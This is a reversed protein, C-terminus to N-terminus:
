RALVYGKGTVSSGLRVNAESNWKALGYEAMVHQLVSFKDESIAKRTRVIEQVTFPSKEYIAKCVDLLEAPYIALDYKRSDTIASVLVGAARTPLTLALEPPTDDLTWEDREAQWKRVIAVILVGVLALGAISAAFLLWQNSQEMEVRAAENQAELLGAEARKYEVDQAQATLAIQARLIQGQESKEQRLVELAAATVQANAAYRIADAEVQAAALNDAAATMNMAAVTAPSNETPLTTQTASPAITPTEQATQATQVQEMQPAQPADTFAQCGCLVAATLILLSLAPLKPM